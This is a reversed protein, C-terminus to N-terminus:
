RVRCEDVSLDRYQDSRHLGLASAAKSAVGLYMFAANRHCAGLMYFAMLLFNRIMELSPDCLMGQFSLAQGHSFLSSAHQLDSSSIARCQAGIALILSTTAPDVM